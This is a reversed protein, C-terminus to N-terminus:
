LRPRHRLRRPLRVESRPRLRQGSRGQSGSRLSSLGFERPLSPERCAQGGCGRCWRRFQARGRDIVLDQRLTRFSSRTRPSTKKKKARKAVTTTLRVLTPPLRHVSGTETMTEMMEETMEARLSWSSHRRLTKGKSKSGVAKGDKIDQITGKVITALHGNVNDQITGTVIMARNSSMIDLIMGKVSDEDEDEHREGAHDGSKFFRITVVPFLDSTVHDYLDSAYKLFDQGSPGRSVQLRYRMSRVFCWVMMLVV